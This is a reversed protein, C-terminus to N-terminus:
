RQDTPVPGGHVHLVDGAFDATLTTTALMQALADDVSLGRIAGHLVTQEARRRTAEDDFTLACQKEQTVWHLLALMTQGDPDFPYLPTGVWRWAPDGAQLARHAVNGAGDVHVADGASVAVAQPGSLRLSGERVSLDLADGSVTLMFRTGIHQVTGFPTRVSLVDAAHPGVLAVYLSGSQLEVVDRDVIRLRAGAQLRLTGGHLWRLEGAGQAAVVSGSV